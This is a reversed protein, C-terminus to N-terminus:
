AIQSRWTRPRRVRKAGEADQGSKLTICDDGTDIFCNAIRVNRCSEPNIGDTNPSDSPNRISIGDVVLDECGVPHVTWSPSNVLSLGAIRVNRCRYLSILHPRGHPLTREQGATLRGQKRQADWWPQGQGDITGRGTIAVNELDVGTILAALREDSGRVRWGPKFLPFDDFKRSALLAAGEGVHITVNSRLFVPGTLYRGPPFHVVGGGAAACADITAQIAKTGLTTGDGKAGHDVVSFPGPVQGADTSRASLGLACLVLLSAPLCRGALRPPKCFLDASPTWTLCLM